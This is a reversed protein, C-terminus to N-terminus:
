IVPSAEPSPSNTHPCHPSVIRASTITLDPAKQSPHLQPPNPPHSPPLSSLPRTKMSSVHVMKPKVDASRDGGSTPTAEDHDPDGGSHGGERREQQRRKDGGSTPTAGDPGEWQRRKYSRRKDAISAYVRDRYREVTLQTTDDLHPVVDCDLVPEQCVNHFRHSIM